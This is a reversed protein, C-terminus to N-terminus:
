RTSRSSQRANPCSMETITRRRCCCIEMIFRRLAHLLLNRQCTCVFLTLCSKKPEYFYLCSLCYKTPMWLRVWFCVRFRLLLTNAPVVMNYLQLWFPRLTAFELRMWPPKSLLLGLNFMSLASKVPWFCKLALTFVLIVYIHSGNCYLRHPSVVAFLCGM